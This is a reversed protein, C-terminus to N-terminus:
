NKKENLFSIVLSIKIHVQVIISIICPISAYCHADKSNPSIIGMNRLISNQLIKGKKDNSWDYSFLIGPKNHLNNDQFLNGEINGGRRYFAVYM